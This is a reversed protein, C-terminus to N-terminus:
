GEKAVSLALLLLSCTLVAAGHAPTLDLSLRAVEPLAPRLGVAALAVGLLGGLVRVAPALRSARRRLLELEHRLTTRRDALSRRKGELTRNLEALARRGEDDAPAPEDKRFRTWLEAVEQKLQSLEAHPENM